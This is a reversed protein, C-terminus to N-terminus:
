KSNALEVAMLPAAHELSGACCGNPTLRDGETPISRSASSSSTTSSLVVVIALTTMATLCIQFIWSDYPLALAKYDAVNGRPDAQKPKPGVSAACAAESDEAEAAFAPVAAFPGVVALAAGFGVSEATEVHVLPAPLKPVQIDV